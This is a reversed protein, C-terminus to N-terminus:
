VDRLPLSHRIPGCALTFLDLECTGLFDDKALLDRDFVDLKFKKLQLQRGYKTDYIFEVTFDSWVPDLAKQTLVCIRTSVRPNRQLKLLAFTILIERLIPTACVTVAVTLFFFIQVFRDTAPLNKCRFHSLFVRFSAPHQQAM